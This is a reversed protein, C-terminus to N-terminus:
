KKGQPTLLSWRLGAGAAHATSRRKGAPSMGPIFCGKGLQLHRKRHGKRYGRAYLHPKHGWDRKVSLLTPRMRASVRECVCQQESDKLSALGQSRCLGQQLATHCPHTDSQAWGGWAGSCEQLQDRGEGGWGTQRCNLARRRHDAMRTPQTVATTCAGM